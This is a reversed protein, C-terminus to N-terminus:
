KTQNKDKKEECLFWIRLLTWYNGDLQTFVRLRHCCRVSCLLYLQYFHEKFHVIVRAMPASEFSGPYNGFM